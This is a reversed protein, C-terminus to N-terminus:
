AESATDVEEILDFAFPVEYSLTSYMGDSLFLAGTGDSQDVCWLWQDEAENAPDIPEAYHSCLWEGGRRDVYKKGPELNM